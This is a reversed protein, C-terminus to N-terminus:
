AAFALEVADVFDRVTRFGNDNGTFPLVRDLAGELDFGIEVHDMEDAGLAALQADDTVRSADVCLADAVTRHVIARRQQPTDFRVHRIHHPSM